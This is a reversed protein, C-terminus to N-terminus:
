ERENYFYSKNISNGNVKINLDINNDECYKIYREVIVDCFAPSLEMGFSIRKMIECAILTTGSGMFLDLVKDGEKSSNNLARAALAIPKQTPHVYTQTADKNIHWANIENNPGNWKDEKGSGNVAGKGAFICPEYIRKYRTWSLPAVQKIWVIPVKDFPIQLDNLVSYFTPLYATAHWIYYHAYEFSHNKANLLFAKVFNYYDNDSMSDSWDTCYVDRWDKSNGTKELTRNYNLEAYNVNYPPDTYIMDALQNNMLLAVDTPNTSDGCLLRHNNLEYLDGPQTKPQIPPEADFEDDEISDINIPETTSDLLTEFNMLQEFQKNSFPFTALLDDVDFSEQLEHLLQSLKEPNSEFRTENTEVAIRQAHALPIKGFNYAVVKEFELEILADYRHNGNIIEYFGSDLERVLINEVQGNRKINEKLKEKLAENDEKYNWNAKVLKNIPIAVFNRLIQEKQQNKM